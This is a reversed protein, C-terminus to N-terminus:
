ASLDVGRLRRANIAVIVTSLSMFVAGIAPSLLVGFPALIGAALPLAFVNYGTAWVLNEQMKRYSAKSLTILGVVDLPNNEVLIIDGSEIAVDTGSGIAIGVDARTLAPADNVGDGVMAVLKGESQLQAVKTDKEDPLVEAFYQDIGLEESVARAVDESDGTLMAVEIDLGHLAEITERSEERIVDALAFAAVVESEDHILYIVTQANAGADEAFAAMAESRDIDLEELLNPGGIHVTEGDQPDGHEGSSGNSTPRVEGDVTARVGLGRLNEFNSVRARQVGREEAANRIARAIMHESDGEVGAAIEFARQEDWGDTTEVSVVGQEGKTLTGTKDFMVTDLNRAEEMAIRDRILMGNRAATSTNIAVVLPVALGLAHPCAIVLVTVVRELVGINFGTAVVWAVATIAAVGLAVYFLWGAARDALLQTRSKSQQAEDVLRMIGALTTEEGTKTIEVRLSGDQNVTGAVVESGPEKGVSRSEGTIMSEDVSSEGEVVEGDAPVSAGPRVLVVDGEGLESVPVEETDGSETVREATDPMLKALEDLAGSAARVSRMEVWHGLLMIDILTVLEWFFPTTGALLLSAISYVFAVTIALSILLMMGPERENLESRAMSLFPVGGYAFIIVSLVPTIWVSGPFTPATYGITEQIFESFIIVPVSLVLSVWFRRRFM